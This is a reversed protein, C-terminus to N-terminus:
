NRFRSLSLALIVQQDSRLRIPCPHRDVKLDLFDQSRQRLAKQRSPPHQHHLRETLIRAECDDAAHPWALLRELRVAVLQEFGEFSFESPALTVEAVIGISIFPRDEPIVHM